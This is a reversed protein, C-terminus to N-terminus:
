AEKVKYQTKMGTGTKFVRVSVTRKGEKEAAEIFPRLAKIFRKSTTALEKDVEEGNEVIVTAKIGPMEKGQYEKTIQTWDKFTLDTPEETIKVYPSEFLGWDINDQVQETEM